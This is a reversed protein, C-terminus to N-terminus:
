QPWILDTKWSSPISTLNPTLGLRLPVAHVIKLYHNIKDYFPFFFLYMAFASVNVKNLCVFSFTLLRFLPNYQQDTGKM